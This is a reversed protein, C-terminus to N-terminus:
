KSGKSEEIKGCIFSILGMILMVIGAIMLYDPYKSEAGAIEFIGILLSSCTAAAVGSNWMNISFRIPLGIGKILWLLSCPLAGLLLPFAFLWTMYFSHVGHSFNNYVLYFILCFASVALYIITGKKAPNMKKNESTSM